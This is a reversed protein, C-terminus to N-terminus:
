INKRIGRVEEVSLRTMKAIKEDSFHERILEMAFNKREELKGEQKGEYREQKFADALTPSKKMQKSYIMHNAEKEILPIIEKRLERTLTNPIQLLYDIFYFLATIYLEHPYKDTDLAAELLKRKIEFRKNYDTKTLHLHIGALIALAIPNSSTELSPIAEHTFKYTNYHYIVKTGYFSYQYPEPQFSHSVDTVVAIAYVETSFRDYLRYFYQFMRKSLEPDQSGQVEIHILIYKELGDKLYVKVVKDVYNRGKKVKIIEQFLEQELFDHGKMFDIAEFLDPAFFLIFEEFLDGIVKKWLGDYDTQQHNYESSKELVLLNTM